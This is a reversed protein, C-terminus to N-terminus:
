KGKLNDKDYEHFDRHERKRDEYEKAQWGKKIIPFIRYIGKLVFMGIIIPYLLTKLIYMGYIILALSGGQEVLKVISQIIQESM